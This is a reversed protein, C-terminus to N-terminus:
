KCVACLGCVVLIHLIKICTCYNTGTFFLIAIVIVIGPPRYPQSVNLHGCKTTLWSTSWPSTTLRVRQNGKVGLFIGILPQTLELVMNHSSPNHWNLFGNVENLIMGMVKQGWVVVRSCTGVKYWYIYIYNCINWLLMICLLVFTDFFYQRWLYMCLYLHVTIATSNRSSVWICMGLSEKWNHSSVKIKKIESKNNRIIKILYICPKLHPPILCSPM